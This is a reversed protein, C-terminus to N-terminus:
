SFKSVLRSGVRLAEERCQRECDGTASRLTEALKQPLIKTAQYVDWGSWVTCGVTAVAGIVDGVPLPGDAAAAGASAAMTGAQRAAIKGLIKAVAAVTERICVAEVAVSIGAVVQGTTLDLISRNVDEDCQVLLAKYSEDGAAEATEIEAGLRSAFARNAEALNEALRRVCGSVGDRSAYLSTYFQVLDQRMIGDVRDGGFLRDSVMAKVLSACHTVSDFTEVVEPIVARTRGFGISAASDVEALFAQYIRDVDARYEARINEIRSGVKGVERGGCPTPAVPEPVNRTTALRWVGLATLVLFGITWVVGLRAFGSSCGQAVVPKEPGAPPLPLASASAALAHAKRDAALKISNRVLLLAPWALWGLIAVVAVTVLSLATKPLALFEHVVGQAAEPKERVAAGVSEGVTQVGDAMEHAGVVMATAGGAALIKGPTAKEVIKGAVSRAAAREAEHRATAAALAAGGRVAVEGAVHGGAHAGAKESAKLGAKVVPSLASAWSGIAAVAVAAVMVLKIMKNKM